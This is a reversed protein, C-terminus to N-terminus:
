GPRVHGSSGGSALMQWALQNADGGAFVQPWFLVNAKLDTNIFNDGGVNTGRSPQLGLFKNLRFSSFMQNSKILLILSFVCVCVCVTFRLLEKRTRNTKRTLQFQFSKTHSVGATSSPVFSSHFSLHLSSLVVILHSPHLSSLASVHPHSSPHM